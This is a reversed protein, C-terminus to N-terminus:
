CEDLIIQSDSKDNSNNNPIITQSTGTDSIIKNDNIPMTIIDDYYKDPFIFDFNSYKFVVKFSSANTVPQTYDFSLMDMSNIIPDDIEIRCNMIGYEDFLEIHFQRVMDEYPHDRSYLYWFNEFMMLYNTFGLTHRFEVNLTKDVIEIPSVESRYSYDSNTHMFNNEEIRTPDILPYGRNTQRQELSANTFGLVEVRQITENIFDIPTTFFSRKKKLLKSYKEEVIPHLFEKPFLLRVGNNKANLSLM